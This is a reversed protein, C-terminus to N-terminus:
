GDTGSQAITQPAQYGGGFEASGFGAGSTVARTFSDFALINYCGQTVSTLNAITIDLCTKGSKSVKSTMFSTASTRQLYVHGDNTTAFGSLIQYGPESAQAIALLSAALPVAQPDDLSTKISKFSNYTDSLAATNQAKSQQSLFAPVAIAMLVAIIVIVVLLEILTFGKALRFNRSGVSNKRVM